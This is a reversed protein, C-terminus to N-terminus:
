AVHLANPQSIRVLDHGSGFKQKRAIINSLICYVASTFVPSFIIDSRKLIQKRYRDLLLVHTVRRNRM